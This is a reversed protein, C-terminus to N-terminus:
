HSEPRDTLQLDQQFSGAPVTTHHFRTSYLSKRGRKNAHHSFLPSSERPTKKEKLSSRRPDRSTRVTSAWSEKSSRLGMSAVQNGDSERSGFQHSQKDTHRSQGGSQFWQSPWYVELKSSLTEAVKRGSAIFGASVWRHLQVALDLLNKKEKNM